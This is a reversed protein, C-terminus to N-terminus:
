VCRLLEVWVLLLGLLVVILLVGLLVVKLVCIAAAPGDPRTHGLPCRRAAATAVYSSHVQSVHPSDM